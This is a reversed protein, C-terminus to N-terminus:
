QRQEQTNKGEQKGGSGNPGAKDRLRGLLLFVHPLSHIVGAVLLLHLWGFVGAVSCFVRPLSLFVGAVLFLQFWVFVSVTSCNQPRFLFILPSVLLVPM